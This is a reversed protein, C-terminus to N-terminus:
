TDSLNVDIALPLAVSVGLRMAQVRQLEHLAKYLSKEIGTEYRQVRDLLEAQRAFVHGTTPLEGKGTEHIEERRANAAKYAKSDTITQKPTDISDFDFISKIEVHKSVENQAYSELLEYRKAAILGSEFRSARDLRWKLAAIREVLAQEFTGSPQLDDCLDAHLQDYATSDEGPVLAAPALIGHKLANM